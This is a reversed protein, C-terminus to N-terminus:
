GSQLSANKTSEQLVELIKKLEREPDDYWDMTWIRLIDWGLGQLVSIQSVERDATTKAAKYSDGDLLIGLIYRSSNEPDIVGLDVTFESSGVSIDAEYGQTKLYDRISAAIGSGEEGKSAEGAGEFMNRKGAAFDLFNKLAIVGEAKTRGTDIDESSLSSFVKMEKRARTVAVNLRRWGGDRNLPGFNMYVKGSEDPGYGVSFLIVDREDGQVNELNKIFIGEERNYLWSEFEENGVCEDTLLDEILDQQNVNFTVIGYSMEKQEPDAFRRKVEEVVAAAEAKNQRKGAREFVGDIHTLTVKSERDNVSPFTYLKSEYFEHNSFAILSEHRSRYHWKLRTEPMNLALCDDLISEMDEYELNDEDTQDSTFFTTPPMQKPDGVIVAEKGRSLVGVAKSTPMQSAEDFIVLDFPERGPDLYQAASIPSMLMCPCLRPLLTPIKDMLRRISLGRGNSKIARKLVGIESNKAAEAISDPVNAALRCFIIEKSLETIDKDLKKFQGVEDEFRPGSFSKLVSSGNVVASAMYKYLAKHYADKLKDHDIGGEYATILGKLGLKEAEEAANNYGAWERLLAAGADINGCLEEEAAFFNGSNEREIVAKTYLKERAAMCENWAPVAGKAESLGSEDMLRKYQSFSALDTGLSEKSLVGASYPTFRKVLGNMGFYKPIFWKSNVTNYEYLLSAADLSFFDPKWRKELDKKIGDAEIFKQEKKVEEEIETFSEGGNFYGKLKSLGASYDKNLELIEEKLGPAYEKLGVAQLKHGAPHGAAKGASILRDAALEMNELRVSDIGSLEPLENLSIDEADKYDEFRSIMDFLSIGPERKSHLEEAYLDLEEKIKTLQSLKRKYEEPEKNKAVELAENFQELVEKKRAKNSHLELCFPGIGINKLRKEVVELAAMKEAVFLVTKGASLANAIMITITQSKGTGPPGHLIFSKGKASQEVAFMQSGDVAMPLLLKEADPEYEEFSLPESEYSLKGDILSEVIKNKLLEDARNKLDNWMVFQSFSFVGICASELVDWGKQDKIAASMVQFVKATDVGHEDEPLPTLGDVVIDFDQKLKELLTINLQTDEDRKRIVYGKEAGKRIIEIPLLLIPAYRPEGSKRYEYWRLLGLAIYLSNAGNEEMLTRAKRHLNKLKDNLDAPTLSSRLRGTKFEEMIYDKKDALEHINDFTLNETSKHWDEPKPFVSFDNGDALLDEISAATDTLIPIVTRSLRMNILTNRLGLDLLKREWMEMKSFKNETNMLTGNDM